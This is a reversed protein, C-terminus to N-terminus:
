AHDVTFIGLVCTMLLHGHLDSLHVTGFYGGVTQCLADPPTPILGPEPGQRDGALLGRSQGLDEAQGSEIGRAVAPTDRGDKM